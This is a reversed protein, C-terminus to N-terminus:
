MEYWADTSAEYKYFAGTDIALFSSGTDVHHPLKSVDTSLGEYNRINGDNSTCKLSGMDPITEGKSYYKGDVYMDRDAIM